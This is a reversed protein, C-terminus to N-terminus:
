APLAELRRYLSRWGEYLERDEARDRFWRAELRELLALLEDREPPPLRAERLRRRLVRNTEFRSLDIVGRRLLLEIAALHLRHAAALFHGAAALAAAEDAFRCVPVGDRPEAPRRAAALASRISWLIHAFLLAAVLLLFALLTWYLAPSELRLADFWEGVARLWELLREILESRLRYTEWETYERRQLIEAALQRAKEDTAAADM